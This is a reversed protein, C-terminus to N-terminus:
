NFCLSPHFPMCILLPTLPLKFNSILYMQFQLRIFLSWSCGPLLKLHTWLMIFGTLNEFFFFFCHCVLQLWWDNGLEDHIEHTMIPSSFQAHFVVEAATERPPLLHVSKPEAKHWKSSCPHHLLIICCCHLHQNLPFSLEESKPCCIFTCAQPYPHYQLNTFHLSRPDFYLFPPFLYILSTTLLTKRVLILLLQYIKFKLENSEHMSCIWSFICFSGASMMICALMSILYIRSVM